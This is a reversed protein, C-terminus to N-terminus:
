PKLQIVDDLVPEARRRWDGGAGVAWAVADAAWLLPEEAPRLHLYVLQREGYKRLASNIVRIDLHNMSERSELVLRRAGAPVIDAVLALLCAERAEKTQAPCSYVRGRLGSTALESLIERRRPNSEKAFHVRRQGRRRLDRLGARIRDLAAPDVVLVAGLLYAHPRESEDVFVHM